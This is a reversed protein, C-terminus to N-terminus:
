EASEAQVPILLEKGTLDEILDTVDQRIVEPPANYEGEIVASIQQVSATGDSLEWIRTGVENLAFHNGGEMDFLVFTDSSKQALVHDSQRFVSDGLVPTM